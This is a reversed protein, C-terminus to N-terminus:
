ACAATGLRGDRHHRSDQKLKLNEVLSNSKKDNIDKLYLNLNM